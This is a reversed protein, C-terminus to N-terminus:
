VLIQKLVSSLITFRRKTPRRLFGQAFAYKHNVPKIPSKPPNEQPVHRRKRETWKKKAKPANRSAFDLGSFSGISGDLTERWWGSMCHLPTPLLGPIALLYLTSSSRSCFCLM